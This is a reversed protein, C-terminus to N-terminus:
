RHPLGEVFQELHGPVRGFMEGLHEILRVMYPQGPVDEGGNADGGKFRNSTVVSWEEFSLLNNRDADLKKFAAVRPQLIETRSITNDRDRDLRNFRSEERTTVDAEACAM